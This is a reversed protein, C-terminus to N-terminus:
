QQSIWDGHPKSLVMFRDLKELQVSEWVYAWDQSILWLQQDPHGDSFNDLLQPERYIVWVGPLSFDVEELNFWTTNRWTCPSSYGDPLPAYCIVEHGHSALRWAMECFSTESGGIGTEVSNVWSWKEFNKRHILVFRM